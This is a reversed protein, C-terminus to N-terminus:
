KKKYTKRTRGNPGPFPYNAHTRRRRKIPGPGRPAAEEAARRALWRRFALEEARRAFLGQLAAEAKEEAAAEAEVEENAQEAWQRHNRYAWLYFATKKNTEYGPMTQNPFAKRLVVMLVRAAFGNCPKKEFVRYFPSHREKFDDIIANRQSENDQSKEVAEMHELVSPNEDIKDIFDELRELTEAYSEHQVDEPFARPCSPVAPLPSSSTTDM